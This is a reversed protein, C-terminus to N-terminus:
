SGWLLPSWLEELNYFDRSSATMLHVVVAECDIVIWDSSADDGEVRCGDSKFERHLKDAMSRLHRSSRATAIVFYDSVETLGRVDLELMDEAKLEDLLAQVARSAAESSRM